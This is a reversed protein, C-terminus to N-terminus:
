LLEKLMKRLQVRWHEPTIETAKWMSQKDLVSYFPRKAPTPFKSTPVPLVTNKSDILGLAFSEELIAMAFDYWSAVGADTYHFTGTLKKSVAIWITRALDHAWTPTGVQEDIVKISSHGKM